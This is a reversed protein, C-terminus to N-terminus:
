AFMAGDVGRNRTRDPSGEDGLGKAMALQCSRWNATVREGGKKGPSQLGGLGAIDRKNPFCGILGHGM